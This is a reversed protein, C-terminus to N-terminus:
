LKRTDIAFGADVKASYAHPNNEVFVTSPENGVGQRVPELRSRRTM